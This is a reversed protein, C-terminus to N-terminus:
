NKENKPKYGYENIFARYFTSYNNFGAKEVCYSVNQETKILDKVYALRKKTIYKHITLGTNKMFTRCLHHKSIFFKKELFDLTIDSTFNENLYTILNKLWVNNVNSASYLNVNNLLHLIEIIVSKAITSYNDNFDNTYNKLRMFADFIGSSKVIQYDIKGGINSNVDTFIKEYSPCNNVNFFEPSVNLIIRKYRTPTNHYTRHLQNKRIVILDGYSLNYVNEEIVYKTDGELFMYIEYNDHVHLQFFKHNNSPHETVTEELTYLKNM